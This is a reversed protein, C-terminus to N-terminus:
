EKLADPEANERRVCGIVSSFVSFSAAIERHCKPFDINSAFRYKPGISIIIHTRFDPISM